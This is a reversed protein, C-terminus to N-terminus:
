SKRTLKVSGDPGGVLHNPFLSRITAVVKTDHIGSTSLFLSTVNVAALVENASKLFKYTAEFGSTVLMDSVSDLIFVVCGGESSDITKSILDLYIAYDNQPVLVENQQDTQKPYSVAATSIFFRLSHDSSLLKYIPSSKHTFMFVSCGNKSLEDAFEGVAKEYRSSPDVELLFSKGRLFSTDEGIQKSFQRSPRMVSAGPKSSIFDTLISARNFTVASFSFLLSFFYYMLGNGDISFEFRFLDFVVFLTSVSAWSAGLFVLSSRMERNTYARSAKILLPVTYFLLFILTPALGLAFATTFEPSPIPTGFPDRVIDIRFPHFVALYIGASAMYLGYGTLVFGHIRKSFVDKLMHRLSENSARFYIGMAVITLSFGDILVILFNAYTYFDM